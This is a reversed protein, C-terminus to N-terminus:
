SNSSKTFLKVGLGLVTRWEFITQCHISCDLKTIGLNCIGCKCTPWHFLETPHNLIKWCKICPCGINLFPHHPRFDYAKSHNSILENGGVVIEFINLRIRTGHWIDIVIENPQLGARVSKVLANDRLIIEKSVYNIHDTGESQIQFQTYM